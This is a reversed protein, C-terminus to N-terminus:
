AGNETTAETVESLDWTIAFDRQLGHNVFGDRAAHGSVGKVKLIM